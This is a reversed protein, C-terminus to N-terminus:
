QEEIRIVNKIPIFKLKDSTLQLILFDSSWSYLLGEDRAIENPLTIYNVVIKKGKLLDTNKNEVM